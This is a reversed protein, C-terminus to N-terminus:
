RGSQGTRAEYAENVMLEMARDVPIRVVGESSDVWAYTTLIRTERAHLEQLAPNKRTLVNQRYVDEKTAIFVENLIVLMVVLVIVSVVMGIIVGRARTDSKEYGQKPAPADAPAATPRKDRGENM